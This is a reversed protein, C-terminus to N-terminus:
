PHEVDSNVVPLVLRKIDVIDFTRKSRCVVEIAQLIPGVYRHQVRSDWSLDIVSPCTGDVPDGDIHCPRDPWSVPYLHSVKDCDVEWRRHM